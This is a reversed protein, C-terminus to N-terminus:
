AEVAKRTSFKKQCSSCYFAKTGSEVVFRKKCFSCYKVQNYKVMKIKGGAATQDEEEPPDTEEAAM